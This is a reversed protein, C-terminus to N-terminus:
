HWGAIDMRRIHSNTRLDAFDNDPHRQSDGSNSFESGNACASASNLFKATAAYANASITGREASFDRWLGMQVMRLLGYM